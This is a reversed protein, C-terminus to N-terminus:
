KFCGELFQARAANAANIFEDDMISEINRADDLARQEIFMQIDKEAFGNARLPGTIQNKWSPEFSLLEYTGEPSLRAVSQDVDVGVRPPDSIYKVRSQDFVHYKVVRGGQVEKLGPIGKTRAFIRLAEGLDPAQTRAIDAGHIRMFDDISEMEVFNNTNVVGRKVTTLLSEPDSSQITFGIDDARAKLTLAMHRYTPVKSSFNDFLRPTIPLTVETRNAAFVSKGELSELQIFGERTTLGTAKYVTGRYLAEQGPIPNGELWRAIQDPRLLSESDTPNHVFVEDIEGKIVNRTLIQANPARERVTKVLSRTMSPQVGELVVSEVYNINVLDTLVEEYTKNQKLGNVTTSIEPLQKTETPFLRIEQRLVDTRVLEGGTSSPLLKRGTPLAAIPYIIDDKDVRWSPMEPADPPLDRINGVIPKASRDPIILDTGGRPRAKLARALFFGDIVAGTAAGILASKPVDEATEATGASQIAGGLTFKVFQRVVPNMPAMFGVGQMRFAAGAARMAGGAPVLGFPIFGIGFGLLEGMFSGIKENAEDLELERQEVGFINLPSLFGNRIGTFFSQALTPDVPPPNTFGVTQTGMAAIRSLVERKRTAREDEGGEVAVNGGEPEETITGPSLARIRALIVDKPTAM